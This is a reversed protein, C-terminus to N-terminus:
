VKRAILFLGQRPKPQWREVISFGASEMGAVLRDTTLFQVKPLLGFAAGVPLVLKLWAMTGGLCVTSSILLGGPKLLAHFRALGADPDHLLHILSHAMVVDYTGDGHDLDEVAATAFHVNRVNFEDAKARAIAIMAESLDVADIRSVRPAHHLATTGTGCGVELVTMDPRLWTQTRDLKYEYAAQDAVPSAAYRKAIRNWFRADTTM